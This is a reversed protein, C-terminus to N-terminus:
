SHRLKAHPTQFGDRLLAPVARRDRLLIVGAATLYVMSVLVLEAGNEADPVVASLVFQTWFLGFLALAGRTSLSLSSLTAVAFVSTDHDVGVSVWGSDDALDYVGYPIAKGDDAPIILPRGWRDRPIEYTTM